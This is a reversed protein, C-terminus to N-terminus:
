VMKTIYISNNVKALSRLKQKSRTFASVARQGSDLVKVLLQLKLTSPNSWINIIKLGRLSLMESKVHTYMYM